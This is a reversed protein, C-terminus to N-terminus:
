RQLPYVRRPSGGSNLNLIQEYFSGQILEGDKDEIRYTPPKTYQVGAIVFLEKTWKAEYGKHFSGKSKALRVVDGLKLKPEYSPSKQARESQLRLLKKERHIAKYPKMGISSHITHNYTHMLKPLRDIWMRTKITRNFSEIPAAKFESFTHYVQIPKLFSTVRKNIFESGKDCWIFVPPKESTKLVAQIANIITHTQKNKLPVDVCTLIYKYGKNDVLDM